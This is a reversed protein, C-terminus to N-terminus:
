PKRKRRLCFALGALGFGAIALSSPEPVVAGSNLFYESGGGAFGHAIIGIRLTDNPSDPNDGASLNLGATLADIVSQFDQGAQLDFTITVYEGPNVGNPGPPDNSDASFGQSTVFPPNLGFGAAFFGPDAGPSFSVGSGSGAISAIGFLAGDDFYIDTISSANPGTNYFTFAVQDNGPDTVEVFFQSEGTSVAEPSDSTLAQFGYTVAEAPSAVFASAALALLLLGFPPSSRRISLVM